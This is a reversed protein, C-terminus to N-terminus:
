NINKVVLAANNLLRNDKCNLSFIVDGNVNVKKSRGSMNFYATIKEDNKIRLIILLGNEATIKTSGGCLAEQKKLTVIKKFNEAYAANQKSFTWDFTKRCDPDGAGDLPLETGYFICPMGPFMIMACLACLLRDMNGGVFRLFRPTDHTDLFNLSMANAQEINSILLGNMRDAAITAKISYVGFFDILIKQLKYNMVGDFQDGKLWHENEHWIEGIILVDSRKAKVEKRLQRWMEHSVEDAVDLRLGDFGLNIYELAIDTLYRRVEPNSTNWKPMYECDAFYEYNRKDADPREGDIMFWDYFESDKGNKVVEAFLKHSADCHNFVCDVMVKIGMEHASSLLHKLKELNGFEPSVRLYDKINYKHNSESEFVPTLYLATIGINRLYELKNCIGDIDGGTFSYRDINEDWKTNIYSDNKEYDGRAFRDVFIHYFVAKESWSVLPMVDVKNIFPFQFFTYYAREFDYNESIGDESYFYVKNKETIRFIYAFRVDSLEINIRYYAFTGDCLERKMLQVNYKKTFDYKNNYLIEISDFVDNAAVRLTILLKNASLAYAFRSEPQHYIAYKNM